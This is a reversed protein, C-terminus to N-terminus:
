ELEMLSVLSGSTNLRRITEAFLPTADLTIIKDKIEDNLCSAFVTNAVVIKKLAKAKFADNAKTSFAGHTAVGYVSSAGLHECATAARAITSGSNILDDLIIVVKGRVDGVVAEGSVV